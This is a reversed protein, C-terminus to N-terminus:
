SLRAKSNGTETDRMIKPHQLIVGFATFTDYILKEDVDAALNGVFLNAGVENASNTHSSAKPCPLYMRRICSLHHVKNVKIPKGYLRIMQMIKIAYEADAESLFEVFGYGKAFDAYTHSIVYLINYSQM